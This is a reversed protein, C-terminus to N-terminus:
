GKVACQRVGSAGSSRRRPGVGARKAFSAHSYKGVMVRGPGSIVGQVVRKTQQNLVNITDGLAGSEQAQGRLTLVLGPAEYVLTVTDNHQVINPKM